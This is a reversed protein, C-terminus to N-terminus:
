AGGSGRPVDEATALLADADAVVVDTFLHRDPYRAVAAGNKPCIGLCRTETVWVEAYARREAVREKLGAFVADGAAGCGPGLPSGVDRRNNCVFLHLRPATVAADRV